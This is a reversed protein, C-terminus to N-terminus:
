LGKEVSPSRERNAHRGTHQPHSFPHGVFKNDLPHPPPNPPSHTAFEETNWPLWMALTVREPHDTLTPIQTTRDALQLLYRKRKQQCVIRKDTGAAPTTQRKANSNASAPRNTNFRISIFRRVPLCRCLVCDSCHCCLHHQSTVRSVQYLKHKELINSTLTNNPAKLFILCVTQLTTQLKFYFLDFLLFFIDKYKGM